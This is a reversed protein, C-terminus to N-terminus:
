CSRETAAEYNLQGTFNGGMKCVELLNTKRRGTKRVGGHWGEIQWSWLGNIDVPFREDTQAVRPTPLFYIAM